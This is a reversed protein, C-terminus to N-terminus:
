VGDGTGDTSAKRDGPKEGKGGKSGRGESKTEGSDKPDLAVNEADPNTIWSKLGLKVAEEDNKPDDLFKILNEVNNDFRKRLTAPLAAFESEAEKIMVMGDYLDLMQSTDVYQGQRKALHTVQGTTRFKELITNTDAEKKYSQDTKSPQLNVTFVRKRPKQGRQEIVEMYKTETLKEWHKKIPSEEQKEKEKRM